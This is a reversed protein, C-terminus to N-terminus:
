RHIVMPMPMVTTSHKPEKKDLEYKWLIYECEKTKVQQMFCEEVQRQTERIDIIMLPIGIIISVILTIIIAPFIKSLIFDEKM